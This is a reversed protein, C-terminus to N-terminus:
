PQSAALDLCVLQRPGKLFVRGDAVAPYSRVTRSLVQARHDVKFGQPSATALQLEGTDRLILLRDGCRVLTGSGNKPEEWAVRGTALEICRLAPGSKEWGHGHFGYLHGGMVIASSYHTSLSDKEHWVRNVGDPTVALLTAGLDYWGSIFVRDGVIVPTAAYVNGSTQRGTAFRWFETGTAPNLSVLGSRTLQLLQARGALTAVIPSSCSPKDDTAQWLVGGTRLDFAVVGGKNTGGVNVFVRGDQVLPSGTSGHWTGGSGFQSRTRVLWERKGDKLDFAFLHGDTNHVIVRGDAISPTPRPGNDFYAGDKFKMPERRSWLENGTSADLCDVVLDDNLRHVMVVRGGAVVPSAYGEGTPRSWLVKPGNAPWNAALPPGAYVADRTPGLLQPWDGARAGPPLVWGAAAALCCWFRISRGVSHLHM